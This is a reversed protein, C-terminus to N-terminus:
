AAMWYHLTALRISCARLARRCWRRISSGSQGWSSQVVNSPAAKSLGAKSSRAKSSGAKSSGAKSPARRCNTAPCSRVRITKRIVTQIKAGTM